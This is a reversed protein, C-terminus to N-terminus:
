LQDLDPRVDLLHPHELYFRFLKMAKMFYFGEAIREDVTVGFAISDIIQEIGGETIVKSRHLKGFTIFISTTGWEYLHHYPPNPINISGLNAVFASAHLGDIASLSKPYRGISELCRLLRIFLLLMWKPLKFLTKLLKEEDAEDDNRVSSITKRMIAAVEEFVMDPDFSVVANREAGNESYEQKVVFTFSIGNRQWHSCNSIFRNLKPKLAFTRTLAAMIFDFLHYKNEKAARNRSRIYSVAQTMDANLTYFVMAESRRKMLYPYIRNYIPIDTVRVADNRKKMDIRRICSWYVQM